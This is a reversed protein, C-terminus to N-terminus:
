FGEMEKVSENNKNWILITECFGLGEDGEVIKMGKGENWGGDTRETRKRM